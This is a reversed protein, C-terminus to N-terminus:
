RFAPEAGEPLEVPACDCYHTLEWEVGDPHMVYQLTVKIWRPAPSPIEVYVNVQCVAPLAVADTSDWSKVWETSAYGYGLVTGALHHWETETLLVRGTSGHPISFEGIPIARESM